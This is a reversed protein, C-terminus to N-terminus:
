VKVIEIVANIKDQFVDGGSRRSQVYLRLTNSPVDIVFRPLIYGYPNSGDPLSDGGHRYVTTNLGVSQPTGSGNRFITGEFKHHSNLFPGVSANTTRGVVTAKFAWTVDEPIELRTGVQGGIFIEIDTNATTIVGTMFEQQFVDQPAPPGIAVWDSGDWVFFKKVRPDSNFWILGQDPSVPPTPSVFAGARIARWNSGDYVRMTQRTLDYWLQGRVPNNPPNASAFNELLYYKDQQELQGYDVKTRGILKLSTSQDVVNDPIQIVPVLPNSASFISYAM